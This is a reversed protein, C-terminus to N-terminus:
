TSLMGFTMYDIFTERQENFATVLNKHNSSQRGALNCRAQERLIQQLQDDLTKYMKYLDRKIAFDTIAWMRHRFIKLEAESTTTDFQWDASM